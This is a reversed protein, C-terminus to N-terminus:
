PLVGLDAGLLGTFAGAGLVLLAGSIIVQAVSSLSFGFAIAFGLLALGIVPVALALGEAAELPTAAVDCLAVPCPGLTAAFAPDAVALAAIAGATALAIAKRDSRTSRPNTM